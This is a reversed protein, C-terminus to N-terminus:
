GRGGRRRNSVGALTTPGQRGGRAPYRDLLPGPRRNSVGTPTNPRQVLADFHTRIVAYCECAAVELGPRDLITVDGRAYELLGARQLLGMVVTVSARRVGLMHALYEHTLHFRDRGVRDHSLLLWRACREEIPHLRNCAVSQATMAMIVQVYRLLLDALAGGRRTEELLATAPMRWADGDIQCVALQVSAPDGLFIPLGVMGERGVLGTEVAAGDEMQTLLSCVSDIPFYVHTIIQEPEYIVQGNALHLKELHPRLRDLDDRPLNTLM